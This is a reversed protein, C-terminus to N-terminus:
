QTGHQGSLNHCNLMKKGGTILFNLFRQYILEKRRQSHENNRKKITDQCQAIKM